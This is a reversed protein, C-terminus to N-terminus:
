PRVKIKLDKLKQQMRQQAQKTDVKPNERKIKKMIDDFLESLDMKSFDLKTIDQISLGDCDPDSASGFSKHLQKRAEKQLVAILKSPYCCYVHTDSSTWMGMFQNPTSGLYVCKGDRRMEMLQREEANCNTLNLQLAFGSEACCDYLLDSAINKKCRRCMGKFVKPDKLSRLDNKMESLVALKALSDAMDEYETPASVLTGGDINHISDYGGNVTGRKRVPCRYKKRYTECSGNARYKECRVGFEECGKKRHEKCTNQIDGQCAITIRQRWCSRYFSVGYWSRSAPGEVCETNVINCDNTKVRDMLRQPDELSWYESSLETKEHQVIKEWSDYFRWGLKSGCDEYTEIEQTTGAVCHNHTCEPDDDRHNLAGHCRQIKRKCVKKKKEEQHYINLNLTRYVYSVPVTESEICEVIRDQNPPQREQIALPKTPNEIISDGRKIMGEVLLDGELGDGKNAATADMIERHNPDVQSAPTESKPGNLIQNTNVDNENYVKEIKKSLFAKADQDAQKLSGHIFPNFLIQIM